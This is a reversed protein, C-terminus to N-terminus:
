YLRYGGDPLPLALTNNQCAICTPGTPIGYHMARRHVECYIDFNTNFNFGRRSSYDTGDLPRFASLIPMVGMSALREAGEITYEPEELGVMLISRTNIPGFRTVAYELADLYRRKGIVKAKGPIIEEWAADSYFELNMGLEDVGSDVLLDIYDNHLPASIMVYCSLNFRRKIAQCLQSALIAGMDEGDPTGGGILVHKAPLSPDEVAVALTEILLEITKRSADRDKNLGISCYKCRRDRKWFYCYPGTMGYCFRDASCMQGISSMAIGSSTTKDYFTPRTQLDVSTIIMDGRCIVFGSSASDLTLESFRAFREDVPTNVHIDYPLIMDLGGAAGSRTRIPHKIDVLKHVARESVSIGRDLLEFKLRALTQMERPIFSIQEVTKM